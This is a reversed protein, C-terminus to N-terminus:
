NNNTDNNNIFENGKRNIFKLVLRELLPWFSSVFAASLGIIIEKWFNSITSERLLFGLLLSMLVGAIFNKIRAMTTENKTLLARVTAALVGIIGATIVRQIIEKDDVRNDNKSLNTGVTIAQKLKIIGMQM